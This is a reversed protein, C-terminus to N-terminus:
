DSRPHELEQETMSDMLIKYKSLKEETAQSANKPLKGSAGPIMNMVQQMPGMKNMMEFQSYM